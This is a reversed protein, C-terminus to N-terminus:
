QLRGLSSLVRDRKFCGPCDGCPLTAVHCSHTWGLLDDTVGSSQVLQETTRQLAPAEVRIQGEQVRLLEALAVFFAATGDAHRDGDGAVSGIAVMVSGPATLAETHRCAWAAAITLLMQNRFPWWEPSPFNSDAGSTSLLGGGVSSFDATLAHFEIELAAAVAGAARRESAAPRQGYDVFLAFKPRREFAIAVSDIGGSLLLIEESM